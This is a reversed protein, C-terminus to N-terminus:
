HDLFFERTMLRKLFAYKNELLVLSEIPGSEGGEEPCWMKILKSSGAGKPENLDSHKTKDEDKGVGELDGEKQGRNHQIDPDVQM